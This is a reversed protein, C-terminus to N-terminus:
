SGHCESMQGVSMLYGGLHLNHLKLPVAVGLGRGRRIAERNTSIFARGDLDARFTRAVQDPVNTQIM